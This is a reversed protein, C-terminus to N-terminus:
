VCALRDSDHFINQCSGALVSVEPLSGASYSCAANIRKGRCADFIEQPYGGIVNKMEVENMLQFDKIKLKSFKTM